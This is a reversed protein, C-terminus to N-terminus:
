TVSIENVNQIHHNNRHIDNAKEIWCKAPIQKRLLDIVLDQANFVYFGHQQIMLRQSQAAFWLERRIKFASGTPIWDGLSGAICSTGGQIFLGETIIINWMVPIWPLLFHVVLYFWFGELGFSHPPTNDYLNHFKWNSWIEYKNKQQLMIRITSKSLNWMRSYCLM